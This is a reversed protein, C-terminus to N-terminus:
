LCPSEDNSSDGNALLTEGVLWSPMEGSAHTQTRGVRSLGLQLINIAANIDRDCVFGCHPCVHTRTSLSKQVKKGCNSCNQSTNHPLVAITLKGYKDGFYELWQRFLSWGADSISKSLHRNKVIGKVNLDEYAVLDNSQILRLAVNKVFEERQRSVRLHKRAYRQRAKRYNQSQPKGKRFKKTKQRNLRNLQKETQRYYQPIPEINGQSDALFYKLGVDIGVAKQSPTLPQSFTDRPDLQICFQIYYGDARKLIRVRKIQESQYFNLDRSGILKLGGIGKKDTFTIYKQNESLKWGSVKYEVSRTNKKFKPYGKKGKVQKKCNDYFQNIARLVREIAAQCAHSNLDNVLRFEKRLRTNYRFLETKGIGRNDIWYRLAKNRVFQVTRIAEDISEIQHPKPNVKYELVFM